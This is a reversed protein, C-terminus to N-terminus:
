IQNRSSFFLSVPFPLMFEHFHFLSKSYMRWDKMELYERKWRYPIKNLVLLLVVFAYSFLLRRISSFGKYFHQVCKAAVWNAMKVPSNEFCLYTQPRVWVLVNQCSTSCLTSISFHSSQFFLLLSINFNKCSLPYFVVYWFLGAQQQIDEVNVM